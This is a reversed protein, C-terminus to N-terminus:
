TLRQESIEDEENRKVVLADSAELELLNDEDALADLGMDSLIWMAEDSNEPEHGLRRARRVALRRHRPWIRRGEPDVYVGREAPTGTVEAADENQTSGDEM